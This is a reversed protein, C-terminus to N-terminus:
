SIADSLIGAGAGLYVSLTGRDKESLAAWEKRMNLLCKAQYKFCGQRFNGNEITVEFETEGRELATYNALLFPLYTDGAVALLGQVTDSCDSQWGEDTGSADDVHELWRFLYPFNQRMHAAPTPDSRMQWLQGYLAMDAISPIHGFLFRSGGVAGRNLIDQIRDSSAEIMPKTEPTCGVLAMRSIQRNAFEAALDDIEQLSADPRNDYMLWHSMQEADAAYHWRYHFMAKTLWEDAMDEILLCAFRMLPNSPILPRSPENKDLDLLFPTSDNAWSDDPCQIIPIVPVKVKGAVEGRTVPNVSIWRHPLRKARLAARVKLSYPSGLAGYLLYESM